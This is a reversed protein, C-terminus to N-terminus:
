RDDAVELLMAEGTLGPGFALSVILGKAGSQLLADLVWLETGSSMNGQAKLIGRSAMLAGQSLGMGQWVGEIIDKGGPARSYSHRPQKM